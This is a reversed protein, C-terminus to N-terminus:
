GRNNIGVATTTRAGPVAIRTYRGRADRLFGRDPVGGGRAGGVIQGRNNIGGPGTEVTAGPVELTTYRGHDLLFGPTLSRPGADAQVGMPTPPSAAATATTLATLVAAGAVALRLRRHTRPTPAM